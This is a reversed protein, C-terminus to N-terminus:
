KEAGTEARITGELKRLFERVEPTSPKKIHFETQYDKMITYLSTLNVQRNQIAERVRQFSEIIQEEAIGDPRREASNLRKEINGLAHKAMWYRAGEPGGVQRYVVGIILLGGAVIVFLFTLFRRYCGSLKKNIINAMNNKQQVM